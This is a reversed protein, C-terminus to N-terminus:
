HRSEPQGSARKMIQEDFVPDGIERSLDIMERCIIEIPLPLSRWRGKPAMSPALFTKGIYVLGDYEDAVLVGLGINIYCSSGMFIFEHSVGLFGDMIDFPTPKVGWKNKFELSARIMDPFECVERTREEFRELAHTTVFLNMTSMTNYIRGQDTKYAMNLNCLFRGKHQLVNVYSGYMSKLRQNMHKQIRSYQHASLLDRGLGYKKIGEQLVMNLMCSDYKELAAARFAKNLIELVKKQYEDDPKGTFTYDKGNIKFTFTKADKM